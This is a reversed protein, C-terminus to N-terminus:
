FLPTLLYINTCDLGAGHQGAGALEREREGEIATTTAAATPNHWREGKELLSDRTIADM